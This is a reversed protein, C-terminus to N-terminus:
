SDAFHCQLPASLFCCYNQTSPSDRGEVQHKTYFRCDMGVLPISVLAANDVALAHHTHTRTHTHTAHHHHPSPTM